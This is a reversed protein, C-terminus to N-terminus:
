IRLSYRLYSDIVAQSPATVITFSNTMGGITLSALVPTNFVASSTRRMVVSAGQTVTGSSTVWTTGGNLSYEGGTISIAAPADIGDVYIMDSVYSTSLAANLLTSFSFPNPTTDSGPAATTVSFTGNVGGINLVATVATSNSSSSTRRVAVTQGNTINGPSITFTGGNISYEGNTISVPAPSDIGSIAVTNSTALTNVAVGTQATFTFANPTTDAAGVTTVSFTGNVGGVTLVATVTTSGSGSSTRRVVVSQGNTITGSSTTFGGGNISYEGNAISISAPADIGSITVSNSTAMTSLAVGTQATFTFADPTTDASGATTISYTGDVGGVTLVTSVTTSASGSSTRRVAVTQGNTITGATSVFAGGNISYEGNVITVTAAADIGNITVTNSTYQTSVTANTQATFTFANPITDSGGATASSISRYLPSIDAAALPSGTNGYHQGDPTAATDFVNTPSTAPDKYPWLYHLANAPDASQRVSPTLAYGYLNGNTVEQAALANLQASKEGLGWGTNPASNISKTPNGSTSQPQLQHMFFKPVRPGTAQALLNAKLTMRDAHITTPNGTGAQAIDNTGAEILVDTCFQMKSLLYTNNKRSNITDGSVGGNWGARLGTSASTSGDGMLIQQVYGRGTRRAVSDQLGQVLSDGDAYLVVPDTNVPANFTGIFSPAWGNNRLDPGAVPTAGIGTFTFPGAVNTGNVIQTNATNFYAFQTGSADDKHRVCSMMVSTTTPLTGEAKCWFETGIPLESLSAKLQNATITDLQQNILGPSLTFSAANSLKVPVPTEGTIYLTMSNVIISNALTTHPSGASKYVTDILANITAVPASGVVNVFNVAWGLTGTGGPNTVGGRSEVTNHVRNEVTIFRPM